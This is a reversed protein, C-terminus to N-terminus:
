AEVDLLSGIMEDAAKIVKASAELQIQDQKLNLLPQVLGSGSGSSMQEASAIASANRQASSLARQVGQMGQQAASPYTTTTIAM